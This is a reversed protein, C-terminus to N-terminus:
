SDKFFMSENWAVMLGRSRGVVTVASCGRPLWMGGFDLGTNQLKGVYDVALLGDHGGGLSVSIVDWPGEDGNMVSGMFMRHFACIYIYVHLSLSLSSHHPSCVLKFSLGCSEDNKKECFVMGKARNISRRSTVDVISIIM